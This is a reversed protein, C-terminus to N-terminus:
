KASVTYSIEKEFIGNTYVKVRYTGVPRTTASKKLSWRFSAVQVGPKTVTLSGNDLYKENLYRIYEIKTGVKTSALSISLYIDADTAAFASKPSIPNGSAGLSLTTALSLVVGPAKSRLSRSVVHTGSPLMAPTPSTAPLLSQMTWIWFSVGAVGVLAFAGLLYWSTKVQPKPDSIIEPEANTPITEDM